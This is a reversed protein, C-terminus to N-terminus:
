GPCVTRHGAALDALWACAATHDIARTGAHFAAVRARDVELALADACISALYSDVSHGHRRAAEIVAAELDEPLDITLM